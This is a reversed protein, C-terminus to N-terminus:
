LRCIRRRRVARLLMLAPAVIIVAIVPVSGEGGLRCGCGAENAPRTTSGDTSATMRPDGGSGAADSIHTDQLIDPQGAADLSAPADNTSSGGDLNVGSGVGADPYDSPDGGTFPPPWVAFPDYAPDNHCVLRVNIGSDVPYQGSVAGPENWDDNTIVVTGIQGIAPQQHWTRLVLGEDCEIQLDGLLTVDVAKEREGAAFSLSGTVHRFDESPTATRAETAYDITLGGASAPQDLTVMLRAVQDANGESLRVSSVRWPATASMDAGSDPLSVGGEGRAMAPVLLLHAAVGLWMAMGRLHPCLASRASMVSSGDLGIGGSKPTGGDSRAARPQIRSM